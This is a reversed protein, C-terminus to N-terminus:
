DVENEKGEDWYAMVENGVIKYKRWICVYDNELWYPCSECNLHHEKCTEIVSAVIDKSTALYSVPDVLKSNNKAYMECLLDFQWDEVKILKMKVGQVITM